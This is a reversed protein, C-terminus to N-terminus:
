TDDTIEQKNQVVRLEPRFPCLDTDYCNCLSDCDSHAERVHAEISEMTVAKHCCSCWERHSHFHEAIQNQRKITREIKRLMRKSM